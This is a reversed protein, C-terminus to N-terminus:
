TRRTHLAALPLLAASAPNDAPSCASATTRRTAATPAPPRLPLLTYRHRSHSGHTSASHLTSPRSTHPTPLPATTHCRHGPFFISRHCCRTQPGLRHGPSPAHSGCRPPHLPLPAPSRPPLSLPPPPM